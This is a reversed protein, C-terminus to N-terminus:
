TDRFSDFISKSADFRNDEMGFSDPQNEFSGPKLEFCTPELAFSASERSFSSNERWFSAREFEFRLNKGPIFWCCVPVRGSRARVLPTRTPFRACQAVCINRAAISFTFRLVLALLGNEV